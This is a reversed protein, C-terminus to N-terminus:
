SLNKKNKKIFTWYIDKNTIKQLPKDNNNIKIHIQENFSIAERLVNMTKLKKRWVAPIADKLTNYKLFECRFNYRAEIEHSSLFTGNEKVIDHVINIGKQHWDKWNFEKKQFVINKNLWLTERRIDFPSLPNPKMIDKVELWNQLIQWYFGPFDKPKQTYNLNCKFTDKGLLNSLYLMPLAKWSGQEPSLLRKTWMAKQAKVFSYIDLMKLGGKVYDSILTNRKIKNPKNSWVFNYALENINDLFDPPITLMGCQYIIKSFALSKLITIKGILSLDRQQWMDLIRKFKKAKDMFNKEVVYDTNYSFFIGLSHVQKVWKIGLPNQINNINKGIGMAETKQKNLKLGAYNEFIKLTKFIIELSDTDEVFVTTDDAMQVLKVETTGITIGKINENKRIQHALLEVVMIFLYASLPCGQRVGRELKFFPSSFGNNTVCAESEKYITQVWNIFVPGINFLKLVDYIVEWKITDFAKEFDLFTIIGKTKTIKTHDMIDIITRINQGIFRKKLYAV